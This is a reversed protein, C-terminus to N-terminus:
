EGRRKRRVPLRPSAEVELPVPETRGSGMWVVEYRGPPLRELRVQDQGWGTRCLTATREPAEAGFALDLPRLEMRDAFDPRTLQRRELTGGGVPLVVRRGPYVLEVGTPQVRAEVVCDNVSLPRAVWREGAKAGVWTVAALSRADSRALYGELGAAEIAVFVADSAITVPGSEAGDELTVREGLRATDIDHEALTPLVEDLGLETPEDADIVVPDGVVIPELETIPTEEPPPLTELPRVPERNLFLALLVALGVSAGIGLYPLAERLPSRPPPVSARPGGPSAISAERHLAEVKQRIARARDAPGPPVALRPGTPEQASQAAEMLKRTNVAVTPIDHFAGFSDLDALDAPRSALTMGLSAGGRPAIGSLQRLADAEAETAARRELQTILAREERAIDGYFRQMLPRLPASAPPAGRAAAYADLAKCLAGADPTRRKPDRELADLIIKDLARDGPRLSSPAVIERDLVAAMTEYDNDRKFLRRGAAMEWLCIGLAFVDSQGGIPLGNIQEPSMYAAKGKLQGVATHAMRESARAVGFDIVKCVGDYTIFVNQPSVDRHVVALPQGNSGRASHAAYLGRAADAGICAVIEPAIGQERTYADIMVRVLPRGSLYEMALFYHGRDRGFDFVELVNPHHIQAMISAEDMFMHILDEDRGEEELLVKLAVLGADRGLGRTRALYVEGMGGRGISAVAVYSGFELRGDATPAIVGAAARGLLAQRAEDEPGGVAV